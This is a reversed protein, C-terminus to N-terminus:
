LAGARKMALYRQVLAPGLEAPRAEVIPVRRAQLSRLQAQRAHTYAV